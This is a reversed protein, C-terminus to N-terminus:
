DFQVPQTAAGLEGSRMDALFAQAQRLEALAWMALPLAVVIPFFGPMWTGEVFADDDWSPKWMYVWALLYVVGGWAAMALSLFAAGRFPRWARPFPMTTTLLLGFVVLFPVVLGVWGAAILVQIAYSLGGFSEGDTVKDAQIAQLGPVFAAEGGDVQLSWPMLVVLLLLLGAWRGARAAMRGEARGPEQDPLVRTAIALCAWVAVGGAAAVVVPSVVWRSGAPDGFLLDLLTAFGSGAWLASSAAALTAGVSALLALSWGTWRAAAVPMPVFGLVFLAVAGALLIIAGTLTAGPSALGYGDVADWFDAAEGRDQVEAGDGSLGTHDQVISFPVALHVVLAAAAAVLLVLGPAGYHGLRM